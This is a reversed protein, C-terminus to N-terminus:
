FPTGDDLIVGCPILRRGLDPPVLVISATQGGPVSFPTRVDMERDGLRFRITVTGHRHEPAPNLITVEVGSGGVTLGVVRLPAAKGFGAAGLVAPSAGAALILIGAVATWRRLLRRTPRM